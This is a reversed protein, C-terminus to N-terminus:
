QWSDMRQKLRLLDQWSKRKEGPKRLLYAPHYTVLVPIGEYSYDNGRMKGIALDTALLTQAAIRGLVFIAQPKILAIQQRLYESCNETEEPLPDRNNPPRCKLINAIFVDERDVEIAKLMATLLQGARGVFPLGQKDEEAGPAEGIVLIDAQHNGTGFVTQSRSLCLQECRECNSVAQQLSMWADVQSAPEPALGTNTETQAPVEVAQEEISDPIVKQQEQWCVIGMADLYYQRLHEPLECGM